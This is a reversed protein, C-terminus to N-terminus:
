AHIKMSLYEWATSNREIKKLMINLTARQSDHLAAVDGFCNWYSTDEIWSENVRNLLSSCRRAIPPDLQRVIQSYREAVQVEEIMALSALRQLLASVEPDNPAIGLQM